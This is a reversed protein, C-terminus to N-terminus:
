FIFSTCCTMSCFLVCFLYYTCARWLYRMPRSFLFRFSFLIQSFSCLMLNPLNCVYLCAALTASIQSSPSAKLFILSLNLSIAISFSSISFSFFLLFFPLFEIFECLVLSGNTGSAKPTRLSYLSNSRSSDSNLLM